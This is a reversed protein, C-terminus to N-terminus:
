ETLKEKSLNDKLLVGKYILLTPAHQAIRRFGPFHFEALNFLHDWFLVVLIMLLLDTASRAEGLIADAALSGIIVLAIVDNASLNGISRKPMLRLVLWIAFYVVTGRLAILWLPTELAFAEMIGRKRRDRPCNETAAAQGDTGARAAKGASEIARRRGRM